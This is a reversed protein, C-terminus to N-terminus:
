RHQLVPGRGAPRSVLGCRETFDNAFVGAPDLQACAEVFGDWRPYQRRLHAASLALHKGWHCRAGLREFLERLPGVFPPRDYFFMDLWFCERQHCPSLSFDDPATARLGIANALSRPHRRLLADLEMVTGTAREAPVAFETARVTRAVQWVANALGPAIALPTLIDGSAGIALRRFRGDSVLRKINWYRALATLLLTMFSFREGRRASGGAAATRNASYTIVSDAAPLWIASYFENERNQREYESLYREFSVVKTELALRFQEVCEFTVTSVVGLAGLSVGVHPFWPDGKELERAQGDGAVLRLRRLSTSLIGHRSSGGHTGTLLAGAVTAQKWEGMTPLALGRRELAANLDGCTMGAQVTVLNDEASLLRCYRELHLAVGSTRHSGNKSGRAGLARVRGQNARAAEVARVIDAESVVPVHRTPREM